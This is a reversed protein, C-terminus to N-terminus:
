YYDEENVYVLIDNIWDNYFGSIEEISDSYYRVDELSYPKLAKLLDNRENVTLNVKNMNNIVEDIKYMKLDGTDFGDYMLKNHIFNKCEEKNKFKIFSYEDVLVLYGM